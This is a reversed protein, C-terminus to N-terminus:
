ENEQSHAALLVSSAWDDQVTSEISLNISLNISPMEFTPTTVSRAATESSEEAAADAEEDRTFSLVSKSRNQYIDAIPTQQPTSFLSSAFSDTRVHLRDSHARPHPSISPSVSINPASHVTGSRIKIHDAAEEFGLHIPSSSITTDLLPPLSTVSALPESGAESMSITPLYPSFSPVSAAATACTGATILAKPSSSKRSFLLHLSPRKMRKTPSSTSSSGTFSTDPKLSPLSLLTLSKRPSIPTHPSSGGSSPFPVPSRSRTVPRQPVSLSLDVVETNILLDPESSPKPSSSHTNRSGQPSVPEESMSSRTDLSESSSTLPPIQPSASASRTCGGPPTELASVYSASDDQLSIPTIPSIPPILVVELTDQAPWGFKHETDIGSEYDTDSEATLVSNTSVHESNAVSQSDLGEEGNAILISASSAPDADDSVGSGAVIAVVADNSTTPKIDLVVPDVSNKPIGQWISDAECLVRLLTPSMNLSPCFVLLLNGLPMKTEKSRSTTAKILEVVTYLLDRNEQPLKAVLWTLANRLSESVTRLGAFSPMALTSLSPPKRLAIPATIRPGSPLTPGSMGISLGVHSSSANMAASGADPEEAQLASEFYPILASTLISDPLERLFTKFISAVAHPDLDGPDCDVMDFDAGADFESRLKAVHSSRGSIRFLGEEQVGWKLIHQACRVALAPLMREELPRVGSEISDLEEGTAIRELVNNIATEQVCKRLDRKFVLGGAISAGSSTRRPGRIRRGLNPGSPTFHDIDSASSSTISSSISSTGSFAHGRRKAKWVSSPGSGSGSLDSSTRGLPQEAYKSQGSRFSHGAASGTAVSSSSSHISASSSASSFGGFARGVVKEVARKGFGMAAPALSSTMSVATQRFSPHGGTGGTPQPRRVPPPPPPLPREVQPPSTPSHPASASTATWAALRGRFNTTSSTTGGTNVSSIIGSAAARTLTPNDRSPALPSSPMSDGVLRGPSHIAATTPPSRSPLEPSGFRSKLSFEPGLNLSVSRRNRVKISSTPSPRGSSSVRTLIDLGAENGDSEELMALEAETILASRRKNVPVITHGSHSSEALSVPRPSRNGALAGPRITIHSTMTSDSKRWDEKLKGRERDHSTREQAAASPSGTFNADMPLQLPQAPSSAAKPATESEPEPLQRESSPHEMPPLPKPPTQPVQDHTPKPPLPPPSSSGSSAPAEFTPVSPKRSGFITLKSSSMQSSSHSHDVSSPSTMLSSADHEPETSASHRAASFLATIDESKKRRNNWVRKLKSAPGAPANVAPSSPASPRSYVQGMSPPPSSKSTLSSLSLPFLRNKSPAHLSPASHDSVALDSQSSDSLPAAPLLVSSVASSTDSSALSSSSLSASHAHGDKNRLQQGRHGPM